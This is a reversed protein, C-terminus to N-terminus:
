RRAVAEHSGGAVSQGLRGEIAFQLLQQRGDAWRATMSVRRPPVADRLPESGFWRWKSSDSETSVPPLPIAIATRGNARVQQVLPRGNPQEIELRVSRARRNDVTLRVRPADTEDDADSM